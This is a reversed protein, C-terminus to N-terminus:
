SSGAGGTQGCHGRAICLVEHPDAPKKLFARVSEFVPWGQIESDASCVVVPIDFLAPESQVAEYFAVGNMIPMRLDLVILCPPEHSHLYALADRGNAATATEFGSLNLVTALSERIDSEDDVILVVRSM